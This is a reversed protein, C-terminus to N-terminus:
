LRDDEWARDDDKSNYKEKVTQEEQNRIVTSKLPKRLSSGDAKKM